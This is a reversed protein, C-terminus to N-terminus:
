RPVITSSDSLLAVDRPVTGACQDDEDVTRRSLHRCCQRAYGRRRCCLSARDSRQMPIRDLVCDVLAGGKRACERASRRHRLGLEQARQELMGILRCRVELHQPGHAGLDANPAHTQADDYLSIEWFAAIM